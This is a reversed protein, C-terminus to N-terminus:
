IKFYRESIFSLLSGILICITGKILLEEIIIGKIVIDFFPKFFITKLFIFSIMFNGVKSDINNINSYTTDLIYKSYEFFFYQYYFSFLLCPVLLLFFILFVDICKRLFFFNNDLFKNLSNFLTKLNKNDLNFFKFFHIIVYFKGLLAGKIYFNDNLLIKLGYIIHVLFFSIIILSCFFYLYYFFLSFFPIFFFDINFWNQLKYLVFLLDANQLRSSGSLRFDTLWFLYSPCFECFASYFYYYFLFLFLSFVGTIRYLISKFSSFLQPKYILLSPSIVNSNLLNENNTELIVHKKQNNM